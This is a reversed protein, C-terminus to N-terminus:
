RREDILRTLEAGRQLYDRFRDFSSCGPSFLIADGRQAFELAADVADSLGEVLRLRKASIGAESAMAAFMPGAEGFVVLGRLRDCRSRLEGFLLDYGGHKERGGLMLVVPRDMSAVAVITSGANTSKSDNIISVGRIPPLPQLRYPLAAVDRVISEDEDELRFSDDMARCAAVAAALNLRMHAPLQTLWTRGNGDALQSASFRVVHIGPQSVAEDFESPVIRFDGAQQHAFIRMKAAAYSSMSDHRGLHDPTLNLWVAVHPHFRVCQELQFSSAEVVFVDGEVPPLLREVLPTGINGAAVASHGARCLLRTILEVTSTKGNTGTVAIVRKSHLRAAALDLESIVPVGQERLPELVPLTPRVGPSLIILDASDLFEARHGGQEFAVGQKRLFTRDEESLATRESVSVTSGPAVIKLYRVVSRGTRGYGVVVVRGTVEGDSTM